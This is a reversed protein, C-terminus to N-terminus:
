HQPKPAPSFGHIINISFENLKAEFDYSSLRISKDDDIYNLHKGTTTGWENQRIHTKGETRFAILTQYSFYFIVDNITVQYFNPRTQEHAIQM